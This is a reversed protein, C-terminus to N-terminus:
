LKSFGADALDVKVQEAERKKLHLSKLKSGAEILGQQQITLDERMKRTREEERLVVQEKVKLKIAKSSLNNFEDEIYAIESSCTLDQDFLAKVRNVDVLDEIKVTAELIGFIEEIQPFVLLDRNEIISLKYIDIMSHLASLSQSVRARSVLLDRASSHNSIIDIIV